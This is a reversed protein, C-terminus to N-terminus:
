PTRTRLSYLIDSSVAVDSVSTAFFCRCSACGLSSSSAVVEAILIRVGASMWQDLNTDHKFLLRSRLSSLLVLCQENSPGHSNTSLFICDFNLLKIQRTRGGELAALNWFERQVNFSIMFDNLIEQRPQRSFFPM